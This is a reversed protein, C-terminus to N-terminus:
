SVWLWGLVSASVSLQLKQFLRSPFNRCMDIDVVEWGFGAAQGRCERDYQEGAAPVLGYAKGATYIDEGRLTM